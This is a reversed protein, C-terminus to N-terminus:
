FFLICECDQLPQLVPALAGTCHLATGSFYSSSGVWFCSRFDGLIEYDGLLRWTFHQDFCVPLM